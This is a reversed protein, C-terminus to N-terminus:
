QPLNEQPPAEDIFLSARVLFTGVATILVVIALFTGLANSGPGGFRGPEAAITLPLFAACFSSWALGSRLKTQALLAGALSTAAAVVALGSALPLVMAGEGSPDLCCAGSGALSANAIISLLANAIKRLMAPKM